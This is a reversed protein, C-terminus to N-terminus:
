DKRTDTEALRQAVKILQASVVVLIQLSLFVVDMWFLFLLMGNVDVVLRDLCVDMELEPRM